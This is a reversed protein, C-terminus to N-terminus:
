DGEWMRNIREVFESLRFPKPIHPQNHSELTQMQDPDGTILLRKVGKTEAIAALETGHGGPLLVDSVLLDFSVQELKTKAEAFSSAGEVEYGAAKLADVLLGRVQLDDEVILVRKM